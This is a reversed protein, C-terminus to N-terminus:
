AKRVVAPVNTIGSEMVAEAIDYRVKDSLVNKVRLAFFDLADAMVQSMERKLARQARHVELAEQILQDLTIPFEYELLIHVIGAAQRRLAYPDASGTPIIGISFCGTITDLKDALSVIAGTAESPVRDGAHRPQYHENVALAVTDSEGQKRAYDEGMVGQLEPFEYVMQTVLDFKCIHAARAVSQRVDESTKALISIRESLAEIRRVKDGITGLEEHFVITELRELAADIRLKQDEEYFFK